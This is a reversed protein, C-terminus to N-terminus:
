KGDEVFTHWLTIQYRSGSEVMEVIYEYNKTSPFLILDGVNLKIELNHYIFVLAGGVYDDNLCIASSFAHFPNNGLDDVHMNLKDNKTWESIKASRNKLKVEFEKEILDFVIKNYKDIYPSRDWDNRFSAPQGQEDHQVPKSSSPPFLKISEVIDKCEEPSIFNRIVRINDPSDGIRQFNKDNLQVLALTEADKDQNVQLKDFHELMDNNKNMEM